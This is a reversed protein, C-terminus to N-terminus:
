STCTPGDVWRSSRRPWICHRCGSCGTPASWRTSGSPTPFARRYRKPDPGFTAAADIGASHHDQRANWQDRHAVATRGAHARGPARGQRDTGAVADTPLVDGDVVPAFPIQGHAARGWRGPFQSMRAMVADGVDPLLGPDIAVLEAPGIGLEAACERAIDAALEPTFYAGPVSQAIARRFLGAARPMALLAAVSGGGASQGFVTVRDPDGGFVRINHQVWELVAVQDLLGRNVPTGPVYGFGELGVRYNFTVVVVGHRALSSGDHEPLGSMGFAYAGGQIWVMLRTSDSLALLSGSDEIPSGQGHRSGSIWVTARVASNLASDFRNSNSDTPTM